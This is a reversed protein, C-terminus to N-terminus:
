QIDPILICRRSNELHAAVLKAALVGDGKMIADAIGHHEEVSAKMRNWDQKKARLTMRFYNDRVRSMARIIEQNGLFECLLLHFRSDVKMSRMVDQQDLREQQTQLNDRLIETQEPTLGKALKRVVSCELAERIEFHDNIQAISLECVIIGQQPSVTVFGETELRELASRVPTNSVGLQVALKRASLFTGPELSGKILQKKLKGYIRDRLLSTTM